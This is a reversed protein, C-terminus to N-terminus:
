TTQHAAPARFSLVMALILKHAAAVQVDLTADAPLSQVGRWAEQLRQQLVSDASAAVLAKAYLDLTKLRNAESMLNTVMHRVGMANRSLWNKFAEGSGAPELGTEGAILARLDGCLAKLQEFDKM